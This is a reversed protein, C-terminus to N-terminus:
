GPARRAPRPTRASPLRAVRLSPSAASPSCCRECCAESDGPAAMASGRYTFHCAPLSSGPCRSSPAGCGRRPTSMCRSSGGIASWWSQCMVTLTLEPHRDHLSEIFAITPAVVTRYPSSVVELPLHDGWARWYDQFRQAEDQTPSIHLAVAPQQLSAAYSLARMSAVNLTAIPVIALHAVQQPTAEAGGSGTSTASRLDVDHCVTRFHRRILLAWVTFSGVIALAVWAGATFKTIGAILFVIASLACGVGNLWISTRWKAGRLRWWHVVMGAQSLTFALFVGVAYVPILSNTRGGFEVFVLAAALSLAIIGNNFALRDGMKLYREPALRDRALLFM